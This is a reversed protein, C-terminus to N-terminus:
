PTRAPVADPRRLYLPRPPLLARGRLAASTGAGDDGHASLLAEVPAAVEGSGLLAQVRRGIWSAHPHLLAGDLDEAVEGFQDRHVVAGEGLWRGSRRAPDIAAPLTVLPGDTRAGDSEYWAWYVEHRRADGAVGFGQTPGDVCAAAAIADLSCLGVVPVEWAAGLALATAIGVRLGTYPGPGVGCAITDISSRQVGPAALAEQLLPALVEAHRRADLHSLEVLTTGADTVSVSTLPSSTDLALIM